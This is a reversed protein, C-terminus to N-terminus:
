AQLRKPTRKIIIGMQANCRPDHKPCPWLHEAYPKKTGCLPAPHPPDFSLRWEIDAIQAETRKVSDEIWSPPLQSARYGDISRRLWDIQNLLFERETM